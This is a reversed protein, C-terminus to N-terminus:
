ERIVAGANIGGHIQKMEAIMKKLREAQDAKGSLDTKEGLDNKLDYLAFKELKVDALLKFDGQRTAVKWVPKTDGIAKDYQWYLPSKRNPESDDKLLSFVDTGDLFRDTPPTAGALGCFTPLLDVFGVPVDSVRGPKVVKPWKVIGPIRIGGETMHLKMGRLPGPTGHSHNATKYRNLTEPGNDSSFVVLTNAADKRHDLFKVLRGVEHDILSVSGFYTRKTDDTEAAYKKTFEEPTAVIEHPAHFWVCLFYPEEKGTKLWDIAEDVIITSSNGKLAGVPKGNRIFNVPNEHTPIANNQTAFWHDFGHTGPTPETGDMKSNLHWKGVHATKYGKNKLLTAVSIERNPLSIGSNPPIWDRVGYRNPNRGTLLAARSPSCVSQGCYFSTLKLGDKALQDINPTQITPHGFCGLDGYGLDDCLLVVINPKPVLAMVPGGLFLVCWGILWRM